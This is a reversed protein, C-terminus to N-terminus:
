VSVIPTKLNRNLVIGMQSMKSWIGSMQQYLSTVFPRQAFYTKLTALTASINDLTDTRNALETAIGRQQSEWESICTFFKFYANTMGENKVSEAHVISREIWIQDFSSFADLATNLLVETNPDTPDYSDFVSEFENMITQMSSYIQLLSEPDSTSGLRIMDNKLAESLITCKADYSIVKERKNAEEDAMDQAKRKFRDLIFQFTSWHNEVLELSETEERLVRILETPIHIGSEIQDITEQMIDGPQDMNAVIFQRNFCIWTMFSEEKEHLSKRHAELEDIQQAAVTLLSKRADLITQIKKWRLEVDRM